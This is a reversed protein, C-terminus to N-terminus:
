RFLIATGVQKLAVTTVSATVLNAKTHIKSSYGRKRSVSLGIARVRLAVAGTVPPDSCTSLHKHHVAM